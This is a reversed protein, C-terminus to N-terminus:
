YEEKTIYRIIMVILALFFGIIMGIWVNSLLSGLIIGFGLTIAILIPYWYQFKKLKYVSKKM